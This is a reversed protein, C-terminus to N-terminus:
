INLCPSHINLYISYVNLNLRYKKTIEFNILKIDNKMYCKNENYKSGLVIGCILVAKWILILTWFVAIWCINGGTIAM